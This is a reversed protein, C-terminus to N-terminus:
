IAFGSLTEFSKEASNKICVDREFSIDQKLEDLRNVPRLNDPIDWAEIRMLILDKSKEEEAYKQTEDMDWYADIYHLEGPDFLILTSDPLLATEYAKSEYVTGELLLDLYENYIPLDGQELKYPQVIPMVEVQMIDNGIIINDMIPQLLGPFECRNCDEKMIRGNNTDPHSSFRMVALDDDSQALMVVTSTGQALFSFSYFSSQNRVSKEIFGEYSNGCLEDNMQSKMVIYPVTSDVNSWAEALSGWDRGEIDMDAPIHSCLDHPKYNAAGEIKASLDKLKNRLLETIM